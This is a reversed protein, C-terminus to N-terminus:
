PVNGTDVPALRVSCRGATGLGDDVEVLDEQKEAEECWHGKWQDLSLGFGLLGVEKNQEMLGIETLVMGAAYLGSLDKKAPARMVDAKRASMSVASRAVTLLDPQAKQQSTADEQRKFWRALLGFRTLVFPRPYLSSTRKHQQAEQQLTADERRKFWRAPLLITKMNKNLYL